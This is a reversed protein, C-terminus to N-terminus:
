RRSRMGFARSLGAWACATLRDKADLKRGGKAHPRRRPRAVLVFGTALSREDGVADDSQGFRLRQGFFRRRGLDEEDGCWRFLGSAVHAGEPTVEDELDPRGETAKRVEMAEAVSTAFSPPPSGSWHGQQLPVM